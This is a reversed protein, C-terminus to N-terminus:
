GWASKVVQKAMVKFHERGLQIVAAKDMVGPGRDRAAQMSSAYASSALAASVAIRRISKPERIYNYSFCPGRM